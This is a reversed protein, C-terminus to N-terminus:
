QLGTDGAVHDNTVIYGDAHVVFGSGLGTPTQVLAVAEGLRAVWDRIPLDMPDQVVRYLRGAAQPAPLAGGEADIAALRLVAAKPVAIVDFGVDVYYSNPRELVIQGRLAAGDKLEITQLGWAPVALCCAIVIRYFSSMSTDFGIEPPM